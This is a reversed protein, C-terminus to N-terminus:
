RKSPFSLSHCKNKLLDYWEAYLTHWKSLGLLLVCGHKALLCFVVVACGLVFGVKKKNKVTDPPLVQLVNTLIELFIQLHGFRTGDM